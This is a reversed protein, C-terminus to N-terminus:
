WIILRDEPALYMNDGPKVDYTEYFEDFQQVPVNTRSYNLPHADQTLASFEQNYGGLSANMQAYKIFFKDYDFNEVKSAMRLACQLGTMDAVMETDINGGIFHHDGFAIITDLYDDMKKVRKDFEEKDAETWWDRYVGEADFQSGNSDFAHSIEHGVWFAGISAYLEEISMDSSYFPEGMMGIIMNITNDSPSYYANCELINMDEAWMEKDIKKGLLSTNYAIESKNIRDLAENLTCGSLDIDSTDRFKDPYAAHIVIKELKEIAYNKVEESAWTNESLLERYTDIVERCLDEMKKKDEESGYKSIYVKQMSAPLAGAVLDYAMEEDSIMGSIGYYENGIDNLADYTDKDLFNGSSNLYYVLMVDKIGEINEQTYVEDLAEFYGPNTVLYVGDYKYGTATLLKELPFNKSLAVLEEFSMENNIKDYIDESYNEETTFIKKALIGQIDIAADFRKSAEDESMGMKGAIYTFIDKRYGYLLDGYDTREKYEASDSLLLRPTGISCLYTNPDNLGTDAGYGVFDYFEFLTDKGTLLETIDDITEAALIKDYLEKIQSVGIANRTDWDLVLNNYTRILDADHGELSDDKLLEMCKEKVALGCESYHSWTGYGDPLETSLIWDKNAYLHFDDKPDTEMDATINEKIESDIWPKGGTTVQAGEEAELNESPEETEIETSAETASEAQNSSNDNTTTEKEESEPPNDVTTAKGCGYIGGIMAITLLIAVLKKKM